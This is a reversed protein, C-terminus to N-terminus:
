TKCTNHAVQSKSYPKYVKSQSIHTYSRMNFLNISFLLSYVSTCGYSYKSYKYNFHFKKLFLLNFRKQFHSKRKLVRQPEMTTPIEGWGFVVNETNCTKLLELPPQNLPTGSNDSSREYDKNRLPLKLKQLLTNRTTSVPFPCKYVQWTKICYLIM